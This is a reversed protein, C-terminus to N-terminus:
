LSSIEINLLVVLRDSFTGSFLVNCIEMPHNDIAQVLHNILKPLQRLREYTTVIACLLRTHSDCGGRHDSTLWVESLMNMVNEELSSHNIQLLYQMCDYWSPCRCSFGCNLLGKVYGPGGDGQTVNCLLKNRNKM